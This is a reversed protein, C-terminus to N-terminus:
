TQRARSYNLVFTGGRAEGNILLNGAGAIGACLLLLTWVGLVSLATRKM